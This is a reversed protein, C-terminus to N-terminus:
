NFGNLIYHQLIWRLVHIVMGNLNRYGLKDKVKFNQSWIHAHLKTTGICAAYEM